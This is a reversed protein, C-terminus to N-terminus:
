ERIIFKKVLDQLNVSMAALEQASSAMEEMSATMEEVSSSTEEISSASEESIAAVETVASKAEQANISQKNSAEAIQEVQAAAIEAAKFIKELSQQVKEIILRGEEVETTATTVSAVAKSTEDQITRILSGIQTAAQASNEALKRVEEAVVAFGRGADGARAAEIAANLALLNTQDAINTIVDVIRGIEQSRAGLQEVVTAIQNASETIRIIKDAAQHSAKMGDQALESTEKTALSSEKASSAVQKVSETMKSIINSTEESRRAQTTIGQSIQQVTSSVEETSANIQEASSSLGQASTSVKDATNKVEVIINHLTDIMKNFSAGLRGLEDESQIDILQTLDGGQAALDETFKELKALPQLMIKSLFLIIFITIIFGILSILINRNRAAAIANDVPVFDKAIRLAGLLTLDKGHCVMCEKSNNIPEIDEYVRSQTRERIVVGKFKEAKDPNEIITKLNHSMSIEGILEPETSRKIKGTHNVLHIVLGPNQERILELQKQILEQEGELMPYRIAGLITSALANANESETNSIVKAQYLTNSIALIAFVIVLVIGIWGAIKGGLSRRVIAFM